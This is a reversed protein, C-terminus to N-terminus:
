KIKQASTPRPVSCLNKGELSEPGTIATDDARVPLDQGAVFYPGAFAVREKRADTISYTAFIMDVEGNELAHERNAS